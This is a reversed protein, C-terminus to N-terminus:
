LFAARGSRVLTETASGTIEEATLAYLFHDRWRKNVDMYRELLGERRFGIKSLVAQSAVNDPQVTADLRHLGVPGFCHDVGLAVAATTIGQGAHGADIWYGIWATRVAGRQINGVTLQGIYVGDLEIVFPLLTGRKAESKLVAFLPPWSSVQHRSAWSGVGTPEWPMLSNQNRIRLESWDKADRLKVPRITVAGARTGLPGLTAPWGPSVPEGSLWRFM